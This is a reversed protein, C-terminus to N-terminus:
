STRTVKVKSMETRFHIPVDIVRVPIINEGFEFNTRCETRYNPGVPVYPRVSGNTMNAPSATRVKQGSLKGTLEEWM